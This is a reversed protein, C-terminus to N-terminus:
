PWLVILLLASGWSYSSSLECSSSSTSLTSNSSPTSHSFSNLKVTEELGLWSRISSGLRVIDGESLKNNLPFSMGM